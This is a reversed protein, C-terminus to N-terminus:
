PQSFQIMAKAHSHLPETEQTRSNASDFHLTYNGSSTQQVTGGTTTIPSWATELDITSEGDRTLYANITLTRGTLTAGAIRLGSSADGAHLRPKPVVIQVGGDYDIECQTKGSPANFSLAVHEDQPTRQVTPQLRHVSSATTAITVKRINAGLPIEPDFDILILAGSNEVDLRLGHADRTLRLHILSDAIHVNGISIENWQAPLHPTFTLHRPASEVELGLLGHVAASLFGASSWTQEPVSEVQPHYFDGALLEHIHGESDLTNWPVLGQWIQWATLPRHQQWFANAVISSGLASVSGKSYSDPNFQPSSSSMSRTGWDTQFDPSALQDLVGAAKDPSFVNQALLETPHPRQDYIAEGAVTHGALWFHHVPDWNRAAISKRATTAANAAQAADQSGMARAMREYASAAAIWSSSLGLDDRMRDQENSGERGLPIQPLGTAPDIISQCYRYASQIDNWNSKLFGADGTVDFYHAFTSLYQFTVDVHVYMYPYKNQWDILAASQSLEHWIMGNQKNQYKAIFALEERARDYEGAALLADVAVLGDGAFFWAYQPRRGPRSPGYGAVEGCGLSPNCVWAQDLSLIAWALARNIEADPTQIQLGHDILERYHETAEAHLSAQNAELRPLIAAAPATHPADYGIFLTAIKVKHSSSEPSPVKPNLVLTEGREKWITRNEVPDHATIDPSAITASFGYLPENVVYGALTDSWQTSQGGLAGPWMLNLQPVFHAQIAVKKPGEVEYTFIAAPEDLPVFIKERVVFDTGVYTRIIEDPHYDIRRLLSLGPIAHTDGEPLFSIDYDSVLQLPYAWVELGNEAYGMVVSRQGHVAVFRQPQAAGTTWTLDKAAIQQAASRRHLSLFLPLCVALRMAVNTRM